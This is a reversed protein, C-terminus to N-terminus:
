NQKKNIRTKREKEKKREVRTGNYLWVACDDEVM